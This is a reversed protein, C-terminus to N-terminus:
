RAQRPDPEIPELAELAPRAQAAYKVFLMAATPGKNEEAVVQVYHRRGAEVDVFTGVVTDSSRPGVVEVSYYHRGPDVHHYFYTGTPLAGLIVGNERIAFRTEFFIKFRMRSEVDDFGRYFFVIGKDPRLEPFRDPEDDAAIGIGGTFLLAAALLSLPWWRVGNRPQTRRAPM